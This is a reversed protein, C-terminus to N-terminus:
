VGMQPCFAVGAPDGPPAGPARMSERFVEEIAEAPMPRFYYYGQVEDCMRQSLFDLQAETEVGEAIVRMDLSKALNIIVQAIARDKDSSEIGRVFQMDMKIRDIPLMKLRELSSYETGFDDISISVGLAKLRSMLDVMNVTGANAVSETVELELWEPSLGTRRLTDAVQRVFGRNELQQVSINVAIRVAPLGMQQWRKCQACATELVWAGIPQILGTQEALPIFTAPSIFGEDPLKWRLLAELGVIGGDELGIQPQYHVSLQGRELARYLLNSLRASNLARDKMPQSCLAIQNRGQNKAEYMATDANKMLAEPDEGDGPYVAVGISGTVFFEQGRMLIPKQIAALVDRAARVLAEEGESQDLLLVFEDGGFRAVTDCPRISASIVAGVEALLRDGGEHGMADNIAKFADLDIFAVAIHAGSRRAGDIAERLKKKFLLRNPLGTLLDHYATWEIRRTDELKAVADAVTNAIISLFAPPDQAWDPRPQATAFSMFGLDEGNKVIPLAVFGRVGMERLCDEIEGAEPPLEPLDSVALFRKEAFFAHMGPGWLTMSQQCFARVPAAGSALWEQSARIGGSSLDKLALFARECGLFAGCQSLLGRAKEDFSHEDASVLNHSIESVLRQRYAHEANEKLRRQYVRNIFLCLTATLAILGLRVMYDASDLRVNTEPAMSWILLQTATASFLVALLLIRKNFLLSTMLFLFFCAWITIGSYVVFRLTILPVILAFAVAFLLEKFLEDQLLRDLLLVGCGIALLIGSFGAVSYLGTEQYFIQQAMLNLASGAFAFCGVMRYVRARTKRDLIILSPDTADSQMFGYKKVSYSIMLVPLLSFVSAIGPMRVHMLALVVDTVSGLAVSIWLSVMLLKAQGRRQQSAANKRWDWLFLLTAIFFSSYYAYYFILWGNRSVNVWGLATQVMDDRMHATLPWVSFGYVTVLGPLYLLLYSWWRKLLAERGTLLMVYHLLFGFMTAYGLPAVRSGIYRISATAGAAQVALGLSWVAVCAGMAVFLKNILPKLHGQVTYLVCAISAGGATILLIPLVSSYGV